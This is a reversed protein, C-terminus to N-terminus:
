KLHSCHFKLNRNPLYKRLQLLPHPSQFLECIDFPSSSSNPFEIQSKLMYPNKTDRVEHALVGGIGILHAAVSYTYGFSLTPLKADDPSPSNFYLFSFPSDQDSAISNNNVNDGPMSSCLWANSYESLADRVGIHDSPAFPIPDVFAM